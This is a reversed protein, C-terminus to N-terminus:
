LALRVFRTNVALAPPPLIGRPPPEARSSDAAAPLLGPVAAIAKQSAPGDELVKLKSLVPFDDACFQECAPSSDDGAHGAHIASPAPRDVHNLADLVGCAHAISASLALM